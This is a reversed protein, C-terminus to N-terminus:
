RTSWKPEVRAVVVHPASFGTRSVLEEVIKRGVGHMPTYAWDVERPGHRTVLETETPARGIVSASQERAIAAATPWIFVGPRRGIWRRGTAEVSVATM